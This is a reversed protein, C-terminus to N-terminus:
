KTKLSKDGGGNLKVSVENANVIKGFGKEYKVGNKKFLYEIGSPLGTVASTKAKMM